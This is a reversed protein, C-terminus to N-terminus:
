SAKKEQDQAVVPLIRKQKAFVPTEGSKGNLSELKAKIDEESAGAKGMLKVIEGRAKAADFFSKGADYRYRYEYKDDVPLPQDQGVLKGAKEIRELYKSADKAFAYAKGLQDLSLANLEPGQEINMIQGLLSRVFNMHHPCSTMAPCYKCNDDSATVNPMFRQALIEKAKDVKHIAEVIEDCFDDVDLSSFEEGDPKIEGTEWIYGIRGIATPADHLILLVTACVRTQFHDKVPGVSRGSKYDVECPVNDGVFGVVDMTCPVDYKGLPAQGNAILVENYKRGINDGVVRVTRDKVNLVYARELGTVTIGDLALEIDMGEATKRIKEDAIDLLAQARAEPNKKVTRAFEHLINGREAHDGTERAQPLAFSTPCGILRGINSASWGGWTM